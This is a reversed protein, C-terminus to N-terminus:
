GIILLSLYPVIVFVILVIKYFGMLSYIVVDYTDRSISIWRTQVRYVFNPALLFFLTWIVYVGVSLVTCWQFFQTLTAVDM